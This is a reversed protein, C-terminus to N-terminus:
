DADTALILKSYRSFKKIKEFAEEPTQCDSTVNHVDIGLGIAKLITFVEKNALAEDVTSDKVNLIKGRLPLIAHYQSTKRGAKLGSGASLGECLFLECSWRDHSTADSFGEVYDQKGKFVNNGSASDIIKQAKEVASISKYSEALANLKNVHSMWYDENKRFIKIFDRAIDQFDTAKVKSISRLRSKIQSDYVPDEVLMVVWLKLGPFITKHKIKYEERLASEFCSEIYQIHVGSNVVLGNVSGTSKKPALGPDIEFTAYVGIFPNKSPDAPTITRLIEFQYPKINAATLVENNVVIQVKRKYFKEQIFLFNELNEVPVEVKPNSFIETDVKFATITSMNEPLPKKLGMIRELDAKRGAGESVKYGKQYYVYYFVEKKSRPGLSEYFSKVVPLSKDYNEQTIKSLCWFDSSLANTAAVGVGYTGVTTSNINSFKTGAHLTSVAVDAQTQDPRDPSMYVPIGRGNDAVVCYGSYDKTNVIILNCTKCSLIEDTSNDICERAMTDPSDIYMGFKQRINEPYSLVRVVESGDKNLDDIM